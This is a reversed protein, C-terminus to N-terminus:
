AAGPVAGADKRQRQRDQRGRRPHHDRRLRQQHHREPEAESSKVKNYLRDRSESLYAVVIAVILFMAARVITSPDVTGDPVFGILIHSAGLILALPIAKRGYWIGALIIPIYYFHTYAVDIGLYVNVYLTILISVAIAALVIFRNYDSNKQRVPDAPM